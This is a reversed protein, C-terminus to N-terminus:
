QIINLYAYSKPYCNTYNHTDTFIARQVDQLTGPSPPILTGHNISAVLQHSSKIRNIKTM